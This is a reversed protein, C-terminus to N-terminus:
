AGVRARSAANTCLVSVRSVQVFVAASTLRWAQVVSDMRGCVCSPTALINDDLVARALRYQTQTLSANLTTTAISVQAGFEFRAGGNGSPLLYEIVCDDPAQKCVWVLLVHSSQM